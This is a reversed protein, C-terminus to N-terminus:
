QAGPEDGPGGGRVLIRRHGHRRGLPGTMAGVPATSARSGGASSSATPPGASRGPAADLADVVAQELPMAEGEAWAAAYAADGLAARAADLTAAVARESTPRRSAGIRAGIATAAGFLRVARAPEGEDAAADAFGELCQAVGWQSGLAQFLALSERDLARAAAADGQANAVNALARLAHALGGRDGLARWIAVGEEFRARAAAHDGLRFAIDGLGLLAWAAGWHDGLERRLALGQELLQGARADDGARESVSALGGLAAAMARKDGLARAAGLGEVFCGRAAADDGHQLSVFGLGVHSWAVTRADHAARGLELSQTFLPGAAAYDSQDYALTAAGQLARARAASPAGMPSGAGGGDVPLLEALWRRGETLRGRVAWFRWLAGGLRLGQDAAGRAISWRLAARLNGLERELRGLWAAQAPGFLEPEAREALALFYAAHRERLADAEGSQELRELAYERITELMGVRAEPAERAEDAGGQWEPLDPQVLSHDVLSGVGEVDESEPGGAASCVAAAAELTCGGVFVSLRRFLRREPEGLLDCSWGIASRITQQRAPLDRPGGGLLTLRRNLRDLLVRPPLLRVRAAALEIALPLGDLRRCVEAVAPANGPTLAFGHAAAQARAVFLRVAAYKALDEVSPLPRSPGRATPPPLPLPPVAYGHEGSVRLAARSTALVKLRPCAALLAVVQPGAALVHELNDLVLLARRARLEDRLTEQAPRAGDDRVGLARAVAPMVLDPDAVPALWVFWVGDPFSALLDAAVAQALRTKGIGPAGTLTVLRVGPRLALERVAALERERGVFNTLPAPLNTRPPAPAAAPAPAHGLRAAALVDALWAATADVGALVGADYSRLLGKERCLAVLAAEGHADPVADGREWRQVTTRGVGLQAAWGDQTVGGAERLARLM